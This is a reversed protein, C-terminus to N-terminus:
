LLAITDFYFSKHEVVVTLDFTSCVTSIKRLSEKAERERQAERSEVTHYKSRKTAMKVIWNKELYHPIQPIKSRNQLKFKM